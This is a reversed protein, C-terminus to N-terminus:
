ANGKEVICLRARGLQQELSVVVGVHVHSDDPPEHVGHPGLCLHSPLQEDQSPLNCIHTTSRSVRALCQKERAFGPM